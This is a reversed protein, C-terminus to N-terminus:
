KVIIKEIAAWDKRYMRIYYIGSQLDGINITQPSKTRASLKGSKATVGSATILEYMIDDGEPVSLEVYLLERAPNPFVKADKNSGTILLVPTGNTVLVSDKISCSGKSVTVAYWKNSTATYTQSTSGDFWLYSYGTGSGPDLTVPYSTVKLTDNLTGAFNISPADNVNFSTSLTDNHKNIDGIMSISALITNNGLKGSSLPTGFTFYTSSDPKLSVTFAQLVTDGNLIYSIILGSKDKYTETGVNSVKVKLATSQNCFQNPVILSDLKLDDVYFYIHVTDRDTCGNADTVTVSYINNSSMTAKTITFVSDTSNDQWVYSAYTNGPTLKYELAHVINNKGLSILPNAYVNVVSVMSDNARRLDDDMHANFRFTYTSPTHIDVTSSFTFTVSDGPYLGSSPLSLNQSVVSGGNLTYSIVPNDATKITDTGNNMLKLSITSQGSKTCYSVPSIVRKIALDHVSITVRISDNTQCGNSNTVTVRYTGTKTVVLTDAKSGDGWLYSDYGGPAKLTYTLDQIYVDSGLDMSPYGYIEFSNYSSDNSTTLDNSLASRVMFVYNGAATLDVPNNLTVDISDGPKLKGVTVYSDNLTSGAFGDKTLRTQLPITTNGLLTDTGFNKIRVVPRFSASYGCNTVPELIRSVGVDSNLLGFTITDLTICGNGPTNDTVTLHFDGIRVQAGNKVPVSNSNSVNSGGYEWNYAYNSGQYAKIVVTDPRASSIAVPLNTVPNPKVTFSLTATDNNTGYFYQEMDIKTFAKVVYNGANVIPVAKHLAFQKSQGVLIASPLTFTDTVQTGGNVTVGVIITDNVNLNRVGYNKITVTLNKLNPSQCESAAINDISVVGADHPANYLRFNDFAFGKYFTNNENTNDSQFKFRFRVQTKNVVDSPLFQRARLWDVTLTDWGQGHLASINNDNYWNWNWQSYSHKPVDQWSTGGDTSYQLVTGDKGIESQNWFQFGIIPKDINTFDFCPSTVWSSDNSYYEGDLQTAWVNPYSPVPDMIAGGPTGWQWTDNKGESKWIVKAGDFNNAFPISHTPFSYFPISISDNEPGKDGIVATKVIVNYIDPKSFDVPKHFTFIYSSDKPIAHFLTDKLYTAGNDLSIWIPIISKSTADAFNTVKVTPYSASSMSCAEKPSIWQTVGVDSNIHDGILVFNDINWGSFQWFGDSPGLTFRFKTQPKRELDAPLSFIQQNWKSEIMIGDNRWLQTWNTGNDTSYDITVQDNHDINLWRFFSLQLNNYYKLNITPSIAQYARDDLNEEYDGPYTGLGTLDTGLIKFGNFAVSPDSNGTSGGLGQPAAIQFEGSLTWGKNTEFDDMFITEFLPRAGQPSVDSAPYTTGNINLSNKRVIVDLTDGPIAASDIDYSVWLYSAGYPLEYNLSSFTATKGSFNQATGLQVDPTFTSDTTYYLKIGNAAIDANRTNLGEIALSNLKLSGTNGTVKIDTRLIQNYKSGIAVPATSPQRYSVSKLAKPATGTEIISVDDICTGYGWKTTGEFALYYTDSIRSTPLYIDREVWYVSDPTETPDTYAALLVWASDKATKYYVRLQDTSHFYGQANWFKLMPHIGYTKLGTIQPTIIKTAESSLSQLQFMANFNGSHPHMPKKSLPYGPTTTFGGYQFVWDANGKVYETTWNTPISGGNEFGESFNTFLIQSRVTTSFLITIVFLVLIGIKKM